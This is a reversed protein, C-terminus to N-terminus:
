DKVKGKTGVKVKELSGEVGVGRKIRGVSNFFRGSEM